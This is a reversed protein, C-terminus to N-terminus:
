CINFRKRVKAIEQHFKKLARMDERSGCEKLIVEIEALELEAIELNAPLERKAKAQRFLASERHSKPLGPEIKRSVRRWREQTHRHVMKLYKRLLGAALAREGGDIMGQLALRNRESLWSTSAYSLGTMLWRSVLEYEREKLYLRVLPLSVINSQDLFIQKAEDLEIEGRRAAEVADQGVTEMDVRLNKYRLRAASVFRKAIPAVHPSAPGPGRYTPIELPDRDPVADNSM